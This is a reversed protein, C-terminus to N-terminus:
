DIFLSKKYQKKIEKKKEETLDNFSLEDLSYSMMAYM